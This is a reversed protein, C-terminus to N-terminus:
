CGKFGAMLSLSLVAKSVTSGAQQRVALPLNTRFDRDCLQDVVGVLVSLLSGQENGLVSYRMRAINPFHSMGTNFMTRAFLHSM